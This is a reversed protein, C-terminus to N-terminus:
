AHGPSHPTRVATWRHKAAQSFVYFHAAAGHAVFQKAMFWSSADYRVGRGTYRRVRMNPVFNRGPTVTAPRRPRPQHPAWWLQRSMQSLANDVDADAEVASFLGEVAKADPGFERALLRDGLGANVRLGREM